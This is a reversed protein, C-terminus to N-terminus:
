CLWISDSGGLTGVFLCVFLPVYRNVKVTSSYLTCLPPSHFSATPAERKCCAPASSPKLCASPSRIHPTDDVVARRRTRSRHCITLACRAPESATAPAISRRPEPLPVRPRSCVIARWDSRYCNSRWGHSCSQPAPIQPSASIPASYTMLCFDSFRALFRVLLNPVIGDVGTGSKASTKFLHAGISAAYQTAQKFLNAGVSQAQAGSRPSNLTPHLSLPFSFRIFAICKM